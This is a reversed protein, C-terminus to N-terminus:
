IKNIAELKSPLDIHTYVVETVGQGKHGVIKRIIREDVGAETLLSVCTHRTDHPRHKMQLDEMMPTWWSERFTSDQHRNGNTNCFLYDSDKTMWHEVIPVIKEAIPVERIGAETKSETVMIWRDQLHVDEKKVNYFESIRLGTYILFLPIQYRENGNMVSWLKKIEKTTFPSRDLKNPNGTKTVDLYKIMNRKEASLIEHKVCYEWMQGYLTKMKKLTPYNKNLADVTMQLHDLKIDVMKMKYLKVSNRYARKYANLSEQKMRPYAEESWKQYLDEFTITDHKLDYPDKNYDSLATLAEKRTAFYGIFAYVPYSKGRKEDFTWGTTKRAVYPKRRNGSLKYVSGFGNPLKVVKGEKRANWPFTM